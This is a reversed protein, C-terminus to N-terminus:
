MNQPLGQVEAMNLFYKKKADNALQQEFNKNSCYQAKVNLKSSSNGM